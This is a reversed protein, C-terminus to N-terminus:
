SEARIRAVEQQARDCTCPVNRIAPERCWRCVQATAMEHAAEAPSWTGRGTARVAMRAFREARM